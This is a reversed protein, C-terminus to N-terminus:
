IFGVAPEWYQEYLFNILDSSICIISICCCSSSCLFPLVSFFKFDPNRVDLGM